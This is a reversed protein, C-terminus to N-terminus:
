VLDIQGSLGVLTSVGELTLVNGNDFTFIVDGGSVAALQDVVQQATLTGESAWLAEGLSLRDLEVLDFDKILDGGMNTAFSFVDAGGGGTITDDGSGAYITDDGNGAWILDDGDGGGIIDDGIGGGVTDNGAEGWVADDGGDGWVKDSDAGGFITDNGLEGFVTDNGGGGYVSDHGLSDEADRAYFVDDGDALYATDQGEGGWVRDFGDGVAISDNGGGGSVRDHGDGGTLTDNGAGGDLINDLGDGALHDAHDSGVLNEINSITDGQADGGSNTGAALDVTVAATSGEYSATDLIGGQGNIIDAGAGGILYDSGNGGKLTDTGAGGSLWDDETGGDLSDNGAEGDLVDFGQGGELTDDGTGGTLTDAGEHAVLSDNDADGQLVDSGTGGYLTDNGTGGSLTDYGDNGHLEDNGSGGFVLDYGSDGQVTDAGADGWLIDSGEHGYILDNGNGGAIQDDGSGGYAEDNGDGGAIYDAGSKGHLEDDGGNGYIVDAGTDGTIQSIYDNGSLTDEGTFGALWDGTWYSSYDALYFLGSPTTIYHNDGYFIDALVRQYNDSTDLSQDTSYTVSGDAFQIHEIDLLDIVIKGGSGDSDVLQWQNGGIFTISDVDAQNLGVDLTDDGEGGQVISWGFKPDSGAQNLYFTDDGEGGILTDDGRWFYLSDDGAGGILQDDGEGGKLLDNGDGGDLNDDYGDGYLSDHGANGRLLDDGGGGRLSDADEGGEAFDDGAQGLLVDDGFGGFILDGGDGASIHDDGNDGGLRDEGNGGTTTDDGAGGFVVADVWLGSASLDDDGGGGYAAELSLSQLGITSGLADTLIITDFGSGGAVTGGTLDENDAFLVDNGGGGYLADAGAGGSLFDDNNGGTLTDIGDGGAIQTQWSHDGADLKNARTDGFAGDLADLALDLDASGTGDLDVYRRTGTDKDAHTFHEVSKAFVLALEARTLDEAAIHGSWQTFEESTAERDFTNRFVQRVFDADSMGMLDTESDPDISTQEEALRTTFDLLSQSGDFVDRALHDLAPDVLRVDYLVDILKAAVSKLYAKDTPHEAEVGSLFVDYNNTLQHGNGVVIHESSESLGVAFDAQTMAGSSLAQLADEFEVLSAGRGLANMYAQDIFAADTLDPYRTTFEDSQILQDALAALDLEGNSVHAVLTEVEETELDRDMLTDFMRAAETLVRAKSAGDLRAEFTVEVTDVKRTLSWTEIGSADVLHSSTFELQGDSGAPLLGGGLFEADTEVFNTTYSGNGVPSHSITFNTAASYSAGDFSETEITIDLGDASVDTVRKSTITGAPNKSIETTEVRGDNGIMTTTVHDNSTDGDYDRQETITQGDASVTTTFEFQTAGDAYTATRVTKVAGDAEFTTDLNTTVDIGGDGDVDTETTQSLGNASTTVTEAFSLQSGHTQTIDEVSQGLDDYTMVSSRVFESVGDGDLDFSYDRSMGNASVFGTISAAVGGSDKLDRSTTTVSRDLGIDTTVDRDVNADGDTNVTTKSWRGNANTTTEVSEILSGTPNFLEFSEDWAGDSQVILEFQVEAATDGTLDTDRNVTLGNGSTVTTIQSLQNGLNDDTTQLHTVSGDSAFTTAADTEFEIVDDGDFDLTSTTSLGDDSVFHDEKAILTGDDEEHRIERDTSGDANLTTTDTTVLEATGDADRDTRHTRVLGDATITSIYEAEVQETDSFFERTITTTGDNALDEVTQEDTKADGDLDRTTTITRRDASSVVSTQNLYSGDNLAVNDRSKQTTTITTEGAKAGTNVWTEVTETTLDANADGDFDDVITTEYGDDSITTETRSILNDSEGRTNTTWTTSGDSNLVGTTKTTIEYTQDGDADTKITSTLGNAEEVTRTRSQLSGDLNLQSIIQTASGDDELDYDISTDTVGDGNVDHTTDIERGTDSAEVTSASRLVGNVRLESTTDHGGDNQLTTTTTTIRDFSEDGDVDESRTVVLGDDSTDTKIRSLLTNNYSEVDDTTRISGDALLETKSSSKREFDGDGDRDEKFRTVLGDDRVYTETSSRLSLDRNTATQTTTRSGDSALVTDRVIKTDTNTDGGVDTETTITLGDDSITTTEVFFADGNWDFHTVTDTRSGDALEELEITTNKKGDGNADTTTTTELRDASQTTVREGLLTTGDGAFDSVTRTTSGDTELVTTSVMKHDDTTDGNLDSWTTITLGDASVLEEMESRLTTDQNRETVTRTSTGDANEVTLDSISLDTDGDGDADLDTTVDLGDESSVSVSKSSFTGDANRAWSTTTREQTTADVTVSRSLDNAQFTGDQNHDIWTKSSVKDSGLEVKQMSRVSLDKNTQTILTERNGSSDITTVEETALEFGNIGDLDSKVTKTLADDSQEHEVTSRTSGDDNKVVLTSTTGNANVTIDLEETSDIISDADLNREITKTKGDASVEEVVVSRDTGDNNKHTITEKRSGDANIEIVHSITLDTTGDGNEDIVDTRTLGNSSVTETSRRLVNIGDKAWDTTVITVSDDTADTTRVETQDFWGGGTSDREITITLGDASTTTATVNLLVATAWVAGMKNTVTQTKIGLNTVTEITQLQDVVGDGDTDYSNTISTGDTSTASTIVIAITGDAEYGTKTVTRIGGSVTPASEEIRYSQSESILTTDAVTGTSGDSKTFTTKGTIVSGDPLEINTADATLDISTIDLDDLSKTEFSGDDNTVLVWFSDWADDTSDLVGDGNSDFISQLAEVDSTATPDWETFVYQRKETLEGKQGPSLEDADHFFLVGNGAAAWATRNQLGDNSSDVFVTSNQLETLEVGSGDLDLLIPRNGGYGNSGGGFDTGAGASGSHDPSGPGSNATGTTTDPTHHSGPGRSPVDIDRELEDPTRGTVDRGFGDRVDGNNISYQTESFKDLHSPKRDPPPAPNVIANIVSYFANSVIDRVNFGVKQSSSGFPSITANKQPISEDFNYYPNRSNLIDLPLDYISPNNPEYEHIDDSSLSVDETEGNTNGVFGAFFSGVFDVVESRVEFAFVDERTMDVSAVVSIVTVDVTGKLGFSDLFDALPSYQVSTKTEVNVAIDLGLTTEARYDSRGINELSLDFGAKVDVSMEVAIAVEKSAKASGNVSISFANDSFNVGVKTALDIKANDFLGASKKGSLDKSISGFVSVDGSFPDYSGGLNGETGLFGFGAKM